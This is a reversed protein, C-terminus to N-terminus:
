KSNFYENIKYKLDSDEETEIKHLIRKKDISLEENYGLFSPANDQVSYRFFRLERNEPDMNIASDLINTGKNFYSFKQYVNFSHKAELLYSMGKYGFVIAKSKNNEKSLKKFLTTSSDSNETAQYFLKRLEKVEDTKPSFHLPTLSLLLVIIRIM